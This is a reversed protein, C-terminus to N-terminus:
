RKQSPARLPSHLVVPGSHNPSGSRGKEQRRLRIPNPPPHSFVERPARQSQRPSASVTQSGLNAGSHPAFRPYGDTPYDPLTGATSSCIGRKARFSLSRFNIARVRFSLSRFNIARARFSLSRFNIARARFSLKQLKNSKSPIVLGRRKNGECLM